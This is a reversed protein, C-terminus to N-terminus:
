PCTSSFSTLAGLRPMFVSTRYLTTPPVITQTTLPSYQYFIEGIVVEEGANMTFGAPLTAANGNQTGIKSISSRTGGGCYQWNIVPNNTGTKTIDSVIVFGAAGFAYPKMMDTTASLIQQVTASTLPSSNPDVQTTVDTIMSITKEVKQIILVFRTLEVSGLFLVLLITVCFAFEIAAIGEEDNLLAFIDRRTKM